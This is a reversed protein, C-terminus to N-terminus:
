PSLDAHTPSLVRRNMRAEIAESGEAVILQEAKRMLPNILFRHNIGLIFHPIPFPVPKQTFPETM